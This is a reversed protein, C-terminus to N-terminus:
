EAADVNYIVKTDEETAPTYTDDTAYCAVDDLYMTCEAGKLTFIHILSYASNKPTYTGEAEQKSYFNDSVVLLDGNVYCKIRVSSADGLYYEIRVDYWEDHTLLAIPNKIATADADTTCEELSAGDASNRICMYYSSGLWIRYILGKSSSSAVKVRMELVYCSGTKEGTNEFKISDNGGSVSDFKLVKNGDAEEVVTFGAGSSVSETTVSSPASGVTDNEFTFKDPEAPTTPEDPTTPADTGDGYIVDIATIRAQGNTATGSNGVSFTVSSANVTVVADSEVTAGNLTLVGTNKSLYTIKVSVITKGEAATITVTANESQYIRWNEGNTYYKGTNTGYSGVATGAATVTVISDLTITDYLKSDEWGNADAYDAIVVGATIEEGPQEETGGNSLTKSYAYVDIWYEDEYLSDM